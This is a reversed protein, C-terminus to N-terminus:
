DGAAIERLRALAPDAVLGALEDPPLEALLGAAAVPDGAQRHCAALYLGLLTRSAATRQAAREQALSRCRTSDASVHFWRIAEVRVRTAEPLRAWAPADRLSQAGAMAADLDGAAEDALVLLSRANLTRWDQEGYVEARIESAVRAAARASALDGNRLLAMARTQQVSALESHAPGYHEVALPLAREILRLAEAPQHQRLAIRALQRLDDLVMPHEPGYLRQSLELRVQFATRAEDFRELLELAIGAGNLWRHQALDDFQGQQQLRQRAAQLHNLAEQPRGAGSLISARVSEMGILDFARVGARSALEIARSLAQDAAQPEGANGRQIGRQFWAGYLVEAPVADQEAMKLVADIRAIAEATRDLKSEVTALHIDIRLVALADGLSAYGARAEQGLRYAAEYNGLSARSRSFEEILTARVGVDTEPREALLREGLDLLESASPERGRHYAPRAQRFIERQFALAQTARESEVRARAHERALQGAQWLLVSAGGILSITLVAALSVALRHRAVFRRARYRRTGRRASVPRQSLYSELDAAFADVSPYRDEARIRLTKALIADLDGRLQRRLAAADLGRIGAARRLSDPGAGSSDVTSSALAPEETLIEIVAQTHQQGRHRHPLVGTLLEHLLLGLLYVDTQTGIAGGALQEPAAYAPTLPAAATDAAMAGPEPLLKAIGFDLLKVRGEPSVLVNSPKLDRHVIALRHAAAVAAAVELLLRIRAPVDLQCADAHSLLDVGQVYELALWPQGDDLRGGDLLRAINPHSLRALIQREAEFRQVDAMGRRILKVAAEQQFGGDVREARWVEGMGGRGIREILQWPGARRGPWGVETWDAELAALIAAPLADAPEATADPAEADALLDLVRARLDSRGENADLWARRDAVPVAAASESLQRIRQWDELSLRAM